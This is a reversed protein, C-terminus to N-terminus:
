HKMQPVKILVLDAYVSPSVGKMTSEVASLSGKSNSFKMQPVKLLEM